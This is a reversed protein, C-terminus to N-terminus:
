SGTRLKKLFQDVSSKLTDSLQTLENAAHLVQDASTGTEGASKEIDEIKQTVSLVGSSAINM